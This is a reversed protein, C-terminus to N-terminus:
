QCFIKTSCSVIWSQQLVDSESVWLQQSRDQGSMHRLQGRGFMGKREYAGLWWISTLHDPAAPTGEVEGNSTPTVSRNSYWVDSGAKALRAIPASRSTSM